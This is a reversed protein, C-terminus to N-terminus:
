VVNKKIMFKQNIVNLTKTISIHPVFWLFFNTIKLVCQIELTCGQEELYLIYNAKRSGEIINTTGFFFVLM